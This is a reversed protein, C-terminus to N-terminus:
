PRSPSYQYVVLGIASLVIAATAMSLLEYWWWIHNSDAFLFWELPVYHWFWLTGVVAVCLVTSYFLFLVVDFLLPVLLVDSTMGALRVVALDAQRDRLRLWLVFVLICIAAVSSLTFFLIQVNKGRNLTSLSQRYQTEDLTLQLLFNPEFVRYGKAQLFFKRFEDVAEISRLTLRITDTFLALSSVYEFGFGASLSSQEQQAATVYAAKTAFPLAILVDMIQAAKQDTIEPKLPLDITYSPAQLEPLQLQVLSSHATLLVSVMLVLCVFWHASSSYARASRKWESM